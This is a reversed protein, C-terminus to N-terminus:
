QWRPWFCRCHRWSGRRRWEARVTACAAHTTCRARVTCLGGGLERGAGWGCHPWLAAAWRHMATRGSYPNQANASCGAELVLELAELNGRAAAIAPLQWGYRDVLEWHAATPAPAAEAAPEEAGVEAPKFKALLPRLSDLDGNLVATYVAEGDRDSIKIVRVIPPVPLSHHEEVWVPLGDQPGPDQFNEIARKSEAAADAASQLSRHQGLAKEVERRLWGMDSGSSNRLM